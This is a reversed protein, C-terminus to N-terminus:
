QAATQARGALFRKRAEELKAENLSNATMVGSLIRAVEMESLGSVKFEETLHEWTEPDEPKIISWELGETAELSKIIMWSSQLRERKKLKTKYDADEFNPTSVGGPRTITPPTPPPVMKDFLDADTVARATFVIDGGERPIVIHEVNTEIKKGKIKV